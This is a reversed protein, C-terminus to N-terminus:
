RRGCKNKNKKQRPAGKNLRAEDECHCRWSKEKPGDSEKRKGFVNKFIECLPPFFSSSSSSSSGAPKLSDAFDLSYTWSIDSAISVASDTQEAEAFGM